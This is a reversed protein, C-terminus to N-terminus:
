LTSKIQFLKIDMFNGIGAATTLINLVIFFAFMFLFARLLSMVKKKAKKLKEDDSGSMIYEIYAMGILFLISIVLISFVVLVLDTIIKQITKNYAAADASSNGSGGGSKKYYDEYGGTPFQKNLTDLIPKNQQSPDIYIPSPSAALVEQGSKFEDFIGGNDLIDEGSKAYTLNVSLFIIIAIAFINTIKRLYNTFKNKM